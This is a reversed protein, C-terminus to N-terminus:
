ETSGSLDLTHGEELTIYAKKWDSRRGVHKGHRTAKGKVLLTNVNKVKVEFLKSVADKIEAKTADKMVKFVCTNHKEMVLTAKESVQPKCLVKLLREERIM